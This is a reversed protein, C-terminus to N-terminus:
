EGIEGVECIWQALAYGSTTKVLGSFGDEGPELDSWQLEVSSTGVVQPARDPEDIGRDALRVLRVGNGGSVQVVPGFITAWAQLPLGGLSGRANDACGERNARIWFGGRQTGWIVWYSNDHFVMDVWRPEGPELRHEPEDPLGDTGVARFLLGDQSGWLLAARDRGNQALAPGITPPAGQVPFRGSRRM